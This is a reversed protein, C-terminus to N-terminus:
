LGLNIPDQTMWIMWLESKKMAELAQAWLGFDIMDNMARVDNM